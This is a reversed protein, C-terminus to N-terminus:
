SDLHLPRVGVLQMKIICILGGFSSNSLVAFFKDEQLEGCDSYGVINILCLKDPRRYKTALVHKCLNLIFNQALQLM